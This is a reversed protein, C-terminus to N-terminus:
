GWAIISLSSHGAPMKRLTISMNKNSKSVHGVVCRSSGPNDNPAASSMLFLIASVV